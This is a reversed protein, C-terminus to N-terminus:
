IHKYFFTNDVEMLPFYEPLKNKDIPLFNNKTYFNIAAQYKDITGLYVKHNGPKLSTLLSDLLRQAVKYKNGRYEKKVFMKRITYDTESIKLLGITGIVEDQYLAILFNGGPKIYSNIINTLDPQAEVTIKVAFENNQIDLILDVVQQSYNLQFQLIKIDLDVLEQM